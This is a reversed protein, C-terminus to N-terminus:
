RVPSWCGCRIAGTPTTGEHAIVARLEAASLRRLAGQSVFIRPRLLGACFAVSGRGAVVVITRGDVRTTGLPELRRVLSRQALLERAAARLALMAVAVAVAVAAFALALVAVAEAHLEGSLRGTLAAPLAAGHFRVADLAVILAAVAGTVGLLAFALEDRRVRGADAV